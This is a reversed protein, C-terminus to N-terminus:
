RAGEEDREAVTASRTSTRKRGEIWADLDARDYMAKGRISGGVRLYPPGGGNMAMRTLMLTSVGLYDAAEKRSMLKQTM